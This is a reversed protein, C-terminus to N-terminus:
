IRLFLNLKEFGYGPVVLTTGGSAPGITPQVSGSLYDVIDFRRGSYGTSEDWM